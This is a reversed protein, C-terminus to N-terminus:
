SGAQDPRNPGFLQQDMASNAIQAQLEIGLFLRRSRRMRDLYDAVDASGVDALRRGCNTTPESSVLRRGLYRGAMLALVRPDWVFCEM